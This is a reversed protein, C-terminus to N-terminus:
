PTAAVRPSDAAAAIRSSMGDVADLFKDNTLATPFSTLLLKALTEDGNNFVMYVKKETKGAGLTANLRVVDSIMLAKPLAGGLVLVADYGGNSLSFAASDASVCKVRVGIEGVGLKSVAESLSAAFATHSADRSVTAKSADVVALRLERSGAVNVTTEAATATSVVAVFFLFSRCLISNM